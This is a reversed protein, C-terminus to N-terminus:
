TKAIFGRPIKQVHKESNCVDCKLFLKNSNDRVVFKTKLSKCSICQVYEKVYKRTANEFANEFFRGNFIVDQNNITAVSSFENSVFNVFHRIDRRNEVPNIANFIDFCNNWFTRKTQRSIVIQPIKTKSESNTNQIVNEYCRKLLFEYSYLSEDDIVNVKVPVSANEFFSNSSSSAEETSKHEEPKKKKMNSFDIPMLTNDDAM